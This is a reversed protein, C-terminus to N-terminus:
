RAAPALRSWVRHPDALLVDVEDAFRVTSRVQRAWTASQDGRRRDDVNRHHQVAVPYQPERLTLRSLFGTFEPIMSDMLRSHFAHSTRVRRASSGRNPSAITFQRINEESGAVVCGGPENVAAIDVDASLHEAIADPSLAVAVMVGRPAAHMLRARM